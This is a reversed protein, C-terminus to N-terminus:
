SDFSHHAEPFITIDINARGQLKQVLHNCPTAPTWNDLEGIM